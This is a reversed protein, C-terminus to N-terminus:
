SGRSSVRAPRAGEADSSPEAQGASLHQPPARHPRYRWCVRSRTRRTAGTGARENTPLHSPRRPPPGSHRQDTTTGIAATVILFTALWQTWTLEQGLVLLGLLAAAVPELSVLIGFAASSIRRLAALELSNAVVTSLLAVVSGAGLVRPDLLAQPQTAVALPVTLLAAWLTAPALINDGRYRRGAHSGLLMYAAWPVASALALVIGAGSLSGASRYNILFVGGAALVAWVLHLPRRAGALSVALAGLFQLPVAIGLPIRSLSLYITINVAALSTGLAAILLLSGRDEPLRPRRTLWLLPAGFGFRLATIVIPHALAFAATAATQGGQMALVSVLVMASGTAAAPRAPATSRDM